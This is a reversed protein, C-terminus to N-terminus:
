ISKIKEVKIEKWDPLTNKIYIIMNDVLDDSKVEDYCLEQPYVILKEIENEIFLNNIKRLRRVVTEKPWKSRPAVIKNYKVKYIYKYCIFTQSNM